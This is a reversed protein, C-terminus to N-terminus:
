ADGEEDLSADARLLSYNSVDRQDEDSWETRFDVVAASPIDNLIRTALQLRIAVPLPKISHEYLLEFSVEAGNQISENMM